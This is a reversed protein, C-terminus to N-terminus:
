KKLPIKSEGSPSPPSDGAAKQQQKLRLLEQLLDMTKEIAKMAKRTEAAQSMSKGKVEKELKEHLGMFQKNIESFDETELLQEIIPFPTETTPVTVNKAKEPKNM